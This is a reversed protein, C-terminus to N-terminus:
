LSVVLGQQIGRGPEIEGIMQVVSAMKSQYRRLRTLHLNEFDFTFLYGVILSPVDRVGVAGNKIRGAFFKQDVTTSVLCVDGLLVERKELYIITGLRNFNSGPGKTLDSPTGIPM